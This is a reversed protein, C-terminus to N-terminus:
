EAPAGQGPVSGGGPADARGAGGGPAGEDLGRGTLAALSARVHAMHQRVAERRQEHARVVRETEREIRQERLRAEALLEAAQAEADGQLRRATEEAEAHERRARELLAEGRETLEAVRAMVAAERAALTRGLEESNEAQKKEQALLLAECREAMERLEREAAGRLEQAEAQAARRVEEARTRAGTLVAEAAADGGARVRAAEERAAERRARGEEEARARLEQGEAEARARLEEAEAEAESLILLAREGLAEFTQPPLAAVVSRLRDAEQALEGALAGLRALRERAADLDESLGSTFRDVQDPRYGRGRVVVFGHPSKSASM